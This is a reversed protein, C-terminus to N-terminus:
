LLSAGAYAYGNEEILAESINIIFDGMKELESVIDMYFVGIQYNYNANDINAIHEERLTNRFENINYEADQANTIDKLSSYPVKLNEILAVYADDLLDMMRSLKKYMNDDLNGGVYQRIRELIRGVTEGSDGLSEMEGIMKYMGKIRSASAASIEGKAVGNLYAAIEYEIRDTIGEYKVLKEKLELFRERDKEMVAERMYKFGNYCIESFHIIEQKAEDLSLEATSLPGGQIFKLRFVEEEGEPTPVMWTVLREIQPIFWVLIITTATNFVTHLFCIGYLMSHRLEVSMGASMDADMNHFTVVPNPLGIMTVMEGILKMFPNFVVLAGIVGIINILTHALATRKASYNAVAAALNATITTGINEGLVMAAAMEFNIWGNAVFVMTIAMAASSAQLIVTIIAGVITFILVSGFGYNTLNTVFALTDPYQNLDPVSNKMTVLGILLLSFGIIFEGINRYKDNKATTFVFGFAILPIAFAAIDYSFGFLAVLWSTVTTGIHAGMIVGIANGLALLGANVMSVIMVTTGSSSQILATIITGTIIGKFRTSTMSELFSRLKDGAAKQLGESMLSMGYLFMGLAGLLTFTQLLIQM